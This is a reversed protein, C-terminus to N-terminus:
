CGRSPLDEEIFKTLGSKDFAAIKFNIAAAKAHGRSRVLVDGNLQGFRPRIHEHYGSGVCRTSCLLCSLANRDNRKCIVQKAAREDGGHRMRISVCGADGDKGELEVYLSQLQQM